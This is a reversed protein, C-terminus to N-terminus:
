QLVTVELIRIDKTPRDFKDTQVAAISDIVDLGKVVEGFVSYNQDLHPTGGLTKYIDRHTGPITYRKFDTFNKALSVISDNYFAYEAMNESDIAKQLSDALAKNEPLMKVHHQALWDNIRNEAILLTSDDFVKGQVIYFQTSSSARAVNGDRAAALVGKKHFLEPHFEADVRYGLGGNGLRQGPLATKSDPDGGQIMFSEIVRHFLVSDLIGKEIVKIFNDRHKPTENYLELTIDGKSTKMEVLTRSEPHPKPSNNKSNCSFLATLAIALISIKINLNM